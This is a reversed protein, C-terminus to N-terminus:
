WRPDSRHAVARMRVPIFDERGCWEPRQILMFPIKGFPLMGVVVHIVGDM